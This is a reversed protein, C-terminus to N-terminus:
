IQFTTKEGPLIHVSPHDAPPFSPSCPFSAFSPCPPEPGNGIPLGPPALSPPFIVLELKSMSLKLYGHLSMRPDPAPPAPTPPHLFNPENAHLSPTPAPPLFSVELSLALHSSFILPLGQPASIEPTPLAFVFCLSQPLPALVGSLSLKVLLQGAMGCAVLVPVLIGKFLSNM